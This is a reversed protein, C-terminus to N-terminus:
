EAVTFVHYTLKGESMGSLLLTGHEYSSAVVSLAYTTTVILDGNANYYKHDGSASDVVTYGFSNVLNFVATTTGDNAYSYVTKQEGNCFAVIDYGTETKVKVFVTDDVTGYKEADKEAFDYIKNLDLDYIGRDGVFYEGVISMYSNMTKVVKGKADLLVRGGDLTRVLFRNDAVKYALEAEQNDVLKLSKQVKGKNNMTVIDIKDDSYDVKKDVIPAIVAINEFKDTYADENYRDLQDNSVLEEVIYDLKLTTTKGNKASVILSVLNLKQSVGDEANDIDYKKSDEDVEYTYQVFIDGNNLVAMTGVEAYNPAFYTSVLNFSHDYVAVEEGNMVYYYDDNYYNLREILVYEPVEDKKTLTGDEGVTYTTYDYVLLDETLMFPADPAYTTSKVETGKVDYLAYTLEPETADVPVAPTDTTTVKFVPTNAVLEVYHVLTATNTFTGVVKGSRLSLVKYTPLPADTSVFLVFEDNSGTIAYGSLESLAENTTFIEDAVDYETNLIDSLSATGLGCSALATVLALVLAFLAILKTKRM